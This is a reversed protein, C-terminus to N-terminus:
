LVGGEAIGVSERYLQWYERNQPTMRGEFDAMFREDDDILERGAVQEDICWRYRDSRSSFVPRRPKKEYDEIQAMEEALAEESKPEYLKKQEAQRSLKERGIAAAAKDLPGIESKARFDPVKSTLGKYELIFGRRRRRKEEIKRRALDSDKMSSYEVPSAACVYKGERFVLLWEPDLPDFRVEVRIGRKFPILAEHEYVENRFTIRGRDVARRARPLFVLDVAEESVPAPRWGDTYCRELVQRPTAQRPKPRWVWERLAGRHPRANYLDMAAFVKGTFEWFTLLEGREALRRLEKEDVDNEEGPGGLQKVNGPVALDNRLIAELSNFTGEIMKAKANRVIAKRHTGPRVVCPNIEEADLGDLDVPSEVTQEANLGLTRMDKLIGMVYRSLEPKGHDTYISGFAGFLKLGMRLALGMLYSDYKKDLAGGYFCRSRLDQWFYGEPRFVQGSEEDVVWFDFKHQDGVLIEMPDLDAYNRLVPPLTNDLARLGGRQLALLQPTVRKDFWWLASWMGGIEWGRKRAEQSLIRYLADKSIKRHEKKLCLGVWWDVAEPTWKRPQSRTSKTHHLGALGGAEYKKEKRYVTSATTNHKLAVEEVWARKKRGVPVAEAEQIIRGWRAVNPDRLVEMDFAKGPFASTPVSNAIGKNYLAPLGGRRKAAELAAEPALSPLIESPMDVKRAIEVQVDAPLASVPYRKEKRGNIVKGKWNEKKVRKNVARATVDLAAAIEVASLNM